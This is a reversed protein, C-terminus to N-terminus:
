AVSLTSLSVPFWSASSRFWANKKDFRSYLVNILWALPATMLLMYKKSTFLCKNFVKGCKVSVAPTSSMRWSRPVRDIHPLSQGQSKTNIWKMTTEFFFSENKAERKTKDSRIFCPKNHYYVHIWRHVSLQKCSLWMAVKLQTTGPICKWLFISNSWRVRPLCRM